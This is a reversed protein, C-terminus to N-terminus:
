VFFPATPLQVADFLPGLTGEGIRRLHPLFTEQRGWCKNVLRVAAGRLSKRAIINACWVNSNESAVLWDANVKGPRGDQVRECKVPCALRGTMACGGDGGDFGGKESSPRLEVAIDVLRVEGEVASSM